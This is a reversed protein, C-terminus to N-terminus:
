SLDKVIRFGVTRFCGRPAAKHRNRIRTSCEAAAFSGGRLNKEAGLAPGPPNANPCSTYYDKEYWDSCWQWVDGVMRLNSPGAGGTEGSSGHWELSLRDEPPNPTVLLAAKEWEASTPLRGHAWEAYEAAGFWSVCVMPKDAMGRKPQFKKGTRMLPCDPNNIAARQGGERANLGEMNLFECYEAVTVDRAAVYFEKLFVKKRPREDPRGETESSGMEFEGAPILAMDQFRGAGETMVKPDSAPVTEKPSTPDVLIVPPLPFSEQGAGPCAPLLPSGLENVVPSSTQAPVQLAQFSLIVTLLLIM